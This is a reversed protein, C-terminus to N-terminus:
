RARGSPGAAPAQADDSAALVEFASPEPVSWAMLPPSALKVQYDGLGRRYSGVGDWETSLLWCGPDDVARGVRGRVFGPRSALLALLGALGTEFAAAEADPVRFRTVSIM